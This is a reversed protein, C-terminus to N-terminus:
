DDLVRNGGLTSYWYSPAAPVKCQQSHWATRDVIYLGRFNRHGMHWLIRRALETRADEANPGCPGTFTHTVGQMCVKLSACWGGTAGLRECDWAMMSDGQPTRGPLQALIDNRMFTELKRVCDRQHSTASDANRQSPLIHSLDVCVDMVQSAAPEGRLVALAADAASQRAFKKCPQWEGAVHQPVGNLLFALVGRFLVRDAMKQMYSWQLVKVGPPFKFLSTHESSQLLEQLCAISAAKGSRPRVLVPEVDSGTPAVVPSSAETSPPSYVAPQSPTTSFVLQPAPAGGESACSPVAAAAPASTPVPLWNIMVCVPPQEQQPQQQPQPQPQQQPVQPVLLQMPPQSTVPGCGLGSQWSMQGPMEYSSSGSWCDTATSQSSLSQQSSMPCITHVDPTVPEAFFIHGDPAHEVISDTDASVSGDSHSDESVRDCKYLPLFNGEPTSPWMMEETAAATDTLADDETSISLMQAKLASLRRKHQQSKKPESLVRRTAPPMGYDESDDLNLFTNKEVLASSHGSAKWSVTNRAIQIASQMAPTQV